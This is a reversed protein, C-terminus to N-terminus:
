ILTQFRHSIKQGHPAYFWKSPRSVSSSSGMKEQWSTKVCTCKKEVETSRAYYVAWIKTKPSFHKCRMCLKLNCGVWFFDLYQKIPLYKDRSSLFEFAETFEEM